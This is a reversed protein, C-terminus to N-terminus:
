GASNVKAGAKHLKFVVFFSILTVILKIAYSANVISWEGKTVTWGPLIGSLGPSFRDLVMTSAYDYFIDHLALFDLFLCFLIVVFLFVLIKTLTTTKM